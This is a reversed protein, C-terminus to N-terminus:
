SGSPKPDRDPNAAGHPILLRFADVHLTTAIREVNDLSVNSCAREVQGIFTRHLGAEHALAEQTLRRDRRLRRVNDAVVQRLPKRGDRM